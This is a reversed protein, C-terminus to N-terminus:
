QVEEAAAMSDEELLDESPMAQLQAEEVMALEGLVGPFDEVQSDEMSDEAAAAVAAVVGEASLLRHDRAWAGQVRGKAAPGHTRMVAEWQKRGSSVSLGASLDGHNALDRGGSPERFQPIQSVYVRGNPRPPHQLPSPILHMPFNQQRLDNVLQEYFGPNWPGLGALKKRDEADQQREQSRGAEFSDLRKFFNNLLVM